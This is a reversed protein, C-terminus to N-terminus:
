YYEHLTSCTVSGGHIFEFRSISSCAHGLGEICALFRSADVLIVFGMRRYWPFLIRSCFRGVSSFCEERDLLFNLRRVFLCAHGLGRRIHMRPLPISRGPCCFGYVSVVSTSVKDVSSFMEGLSSFHENTSDYLGSV